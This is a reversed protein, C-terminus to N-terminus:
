IKKKLSFAGVGAVALVGLWASPEPVQTVNIQFIPRVGPTFWNTGGDSTGRFSNFSAIGSPNTLPNTNVWSFASAGPTAAVYLWYSTSPSFAFAPTAPSFTFPAGPLTGGNSGAPNTLTTLVNAPNPNTGGDSLIQVVPNDLTSNYNTLQLVVDDLRYSFGAPVTFKYARNTTPSMPIVTTPTNPSTNGILVAANVSGLNSEGMLMLPSSTLLITVLASKIKM